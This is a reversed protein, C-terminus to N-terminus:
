TTSPDVGETGLRRAEQRALAFAGRVSHGAAPLAGFGHNRLASAVLHVPAIAGFVLAKVPRHQIWRYRKYTAYLRSIEQHRLYEHRNIPSPHHDNVLEPAYAVRFGLAEAQACFDIEESGYRLGEDFQARSFVDRPFVTSNIVIAHYGHPGYPPRNQHGLFSANHPTVEIDNNMERGTVISRVPLARMARAANELFEPHIEVDDDVFVVADITEGLMQLCHNRNAALGRRPGDLYTAATFDACVRAVERAQPIDSDDSVLLQTPSATSRQVASLATRLEQPRNRTCICLAIRPTSLDGDPLRHDGPQWGGLTTYLAHYADVVSAWTFSDVSHRAAAGMRCRADHDAALADLRDAIQTPDRDIFWGNRGDVLIDEVGSVRTVLLPLGAAAAEYTVLSFTEYATPLLFADAAAFYPATGSPTGVFHTRSASGAVTAIRQCAGIDGSGVVLLHWGTTKAVAEIAIRLGKREWDGGVFLAVHQGDLIGLEARVRERQNADDGGLEHDVGLPIVSIRAAMQPFHETMERRLGQSDGVVHGTVARRYCWREGARKLPEAISSNLRHLASGRSRSVVGAKAHTAHHLHHVTCLDARNMVIAGTTHLLGRRHRILLASAAIFFCPFALVFPRSPGPVRVFRLAPHPPLECTRAVVTVEVGRRLMGTVLETLQRQMGGVPGIDNAVVTVALSATSTRRRSRRSRATM